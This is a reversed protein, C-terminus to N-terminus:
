EHKSLSIERTNMTPMLLSNLRQSNPVSELNLKVNFIMFILFSRISLTLSFCLISIYVDVDDDYVLVDESMKMKKGWEEERWGWCFYLSLFLLFLFKWNSFKLLCVCCLPYFYSSFKINEINIASQKYVVLYYCCLLSRLFLFQIWSFIYFNSCIIKLLLFINRKIVQYRYFDDTTLSHVLAPQIQIIQEHCNGSEISSSITQKSNSSSTFNINNNNLHRSSPFYNGYYPFSYRSTTTTTQEHQQQNNWWNMSNPLPNSQRNFRRRQEEILLRRQQEEVYLSEISSSSSSSSTQIPREYPTWLMSSLAENVDPPRKLNSKEM